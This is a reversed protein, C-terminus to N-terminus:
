FIFDASQTIKQVKLFWHSFLNWYRRTLLVSMQSDYNLRYVGELETYKVFLMLRSSYSESCIILKSVLQILSARSYIHRELLRHANGILSRRRYKTLTGLSCTTLRWFILLFCEWSWVSLLLHLDCCLSLLHRIQPVQFNSSSHKMSRYM